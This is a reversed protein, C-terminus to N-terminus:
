AIKYYLENAIWKKKCGVFRVADTKLTSMQFGIKTAIGGGGGLFYYNSHRAVHVFHVSDLVNRSSRVPETEIASATALQHIETNRLFFYVRFVSPIRIELIIRGLM